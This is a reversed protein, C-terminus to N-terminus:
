LKRSSSVTNMPTICRWQALDTLAEPLWAAVHHGGKASSQAASLFAKGGRQFSQMGVEERSLAAATQVKANLLDM